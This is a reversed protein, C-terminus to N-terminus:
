LQLGLNTHYPVDVIKPWGEEGDRTLGKKALNSFQGWRIPVLLQSAALPEDLRLQRYEDMKCTPLVDVSDFARYFEDELQPDSNFARLTAVTHDSFMAYTQQYETLWQRAIEGQYVEDLWDTIAAEDIMRDANNSLVRLSAQIMDSQYIRQGDDPQTFVCVPASAKLRRRNIRGFRQILAELPAPDTYIVDLDIDLSVEVVQTAVLVIPKRIMSKSGTAERIISEKTLRDQGNFRGHLLEVEAIGRLRQTLEDFATQARKVTNCCVLVSQGNNAVDAIRKLWREQLLDGNMLHLTHRRFQAFLEDGARVPIYDGLADALQAQLLRPLTASMVFFRTGFNERLYKVTGLIMALRAPEYAHVEDMVFAAGFYDSLLAEYGRLRFPGKLMQYPSLVRVPYYNLQALNKAWRAAREANEPSNDQELMRRYLALTSRSHELGVQGPFAGHEADNLRDYMANMSAQYPLTYFLRPVPRGNGAQACAWLLASETKGSGTPAVLVASGQTEACQRQHAYLSSPNIRWRALLSDPNNLHSEPLDDTHASAMHDSSVLHGRLALTGVILARENKRELTDVFRMYVKLWFAARTAGQERIVRVADAQSPLKPTQIGVEGLELAEIWSMACDNLWRWLGNLTEDPLEAVREALMNDDSLWLSSNTNKLVKADQHHSAVAAAVWRREEDSLATAVWDLFALSLVEHRHPWKDGGRLRVQFGQAAKGWDHLFAAWFLCHWLRPFGLTQPLDPRLRIAQALKELVNWTHQALSEAQGGAGKEASKAWIDDLWEPWLRNIM